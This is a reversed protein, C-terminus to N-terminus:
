LDKVEGNIVCKKHDGYKIIVYGDEMLLRRIRAAELKRGLMFSLINLMPVITLVLILMDM